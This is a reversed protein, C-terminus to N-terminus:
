TVLLIHFLVAWCDDCALSLLSSRACGSCRVIFYGVVLVIIHLLKNSCKFSFSNICIGLYLLTQLEYVTIDIIDGRFEYATCIKVLLTITSSSCQSAQIMIRVIPYNILYLLQLPNM